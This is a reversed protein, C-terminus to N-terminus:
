REGAAYARFFLLYVGMVWGISGVWGAAVDSAYHAGLYMRAVGMAAAWTTGLAFALWRWRTPWLLLILATALAAAAIAHGSPFSYVTAPIPPEDVLPAWEAPRTRELWAKVTLHLVWTGGMSAGVLGAQWRQRALLLGGILGLCFTWMAVTGGLRSLLVAGADLSPHRHAQLWALIAKDRVFGESQWVNEALDVFILWPILWGLVLLGLGAQHRRLWYLTDIVFRPSAM